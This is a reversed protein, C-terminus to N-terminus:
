EIVQRLKKTETEFQTMTYPKFFLDTEISNQIITEKITFLIKAGKRKCAIITVKEGVTMKPFLFRNRDANGRIVKKTKHSFLIVASENSEGVEILYDTTQKTHKLPKRSKNTRSKKEKILSKLINESYFCIIIDDKGFAPNVKYNARITRYDKIDQEFKKAEAIESETLHKDPYVFNIPIVLQVRVPVKKQKGPEWYPMNRVLYYAARDIVPDVGKKIRINSISGDDEVIFQIYVTGQLKREIASYPYKVYKTMYNLLGARGGPFRPMYDVFLYPPKRLPDDEPDPTSEIERPIFLPILM